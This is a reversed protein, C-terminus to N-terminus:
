HDLHVEKCGDEGDDPHQPQDIVPVKHLLVYRQLLQRWVLLRTGKWMEVAAATLQTFPSSYQFFFEHTRSGLEEINTSYDVDTEISFGGIDNTKEFKCVSETM